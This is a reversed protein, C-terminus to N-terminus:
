GHQVEQGCGRYPRLGRYGRYPRIPLTVRGAWPDGLPPPGHRTDTPGPGLHQDLWAQREAELEDLTIPRTQGHRLGDEITKMSRRFDDTNREVVQELAAYADDYSLIGGAIYGGLLESAKLRHHHRNGLISSDIMQVATHIAQAAYRTRRDASVPRSVSPPTPPRSPPTVRPPVPFRQAHPNFYLDSDWSLFCLRSVDKGSPDVDLNYRERLYAIVAGWLTSTPRTM